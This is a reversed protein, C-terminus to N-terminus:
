NASLRKQLPTPGPLTPRMYLGGVKRFRSQNAFSNQELAAQKGWGPHQCTRCACIKLCTALGWAAPQPGPHKNKLSFLPSPIWKPPLFKAINYFEWSMAPCALMTRTSLAGSPTPHWSCWPRVLCVSHLDISLHKLLAQAHPVSGWRDLFRSVDFLPVCKFFSLFKIGLWLLRHHFNPFVALCHCQWCFSTCIMDKCTQRQPM